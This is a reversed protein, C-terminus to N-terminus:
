FATVPTRNRVGLQVREDLNDIVEPEDPSDLDRLNVDLKQQANDRV